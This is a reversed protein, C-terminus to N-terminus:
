INQDTRFTSQYKELISVIYAKTDSQDTRGLLHQRFFEDKTKIESVAM